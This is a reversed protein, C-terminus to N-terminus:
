EENVDMNAASEMMCETLYQSVENLYNEYTHNPDSDENCAQAEEILYTEVVEKVARKAEESMAPEYGDMKKGCDQCENIVFSEFTPIALHSMDEEDTKDYDCVCPNKGCDSCEVEDEADLDEDVDSEDDIEVEVPVTYEHDGHQTTLMGNGDYDFKLELEEGEKTKITIMVHDDGHDGLAVIEIPHSKDLGEFENMEQIEKQSDLFKPIRRKGFKGM